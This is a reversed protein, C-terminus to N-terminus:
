RPARRAWHELPTVGRRALEPNAAVYAATAFGPRPEAVAWAGGQLYDVLPNDGSTLGDGRSKVYAPLDFWPSPNRGEAAGILVFHRLPEADAEAVDPNQDLYWGPDFLPHPSLNARWGHRLYHLLAPEHPPADLQAVYWAPDFLAHPSLGQAWGQRMYHSVMDEGRLLEPGQAAYHIMDFLPHPSVGQAAGSRAYHELPSVDFAAAEDASREAYYTADFLPHFARGERWGSLLYHLLPPTGEAAVDPYDKLYGTQDFLTAPQAEPDAGHAVYAEIAARDPGGDSLPRWVDFHALVEAPTPPPPPIWPTRESWSRWVRWGRYPPPSEPPPPLPEVPKYPRPAVFYRRWAMRRLEAALDSRGQLAAILGGTTQTRAAAERVEAALRLAQAEAVQAKLDGIRVAVADIRDTLAVPPPTAPPKRAASRVL